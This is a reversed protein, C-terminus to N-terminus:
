PAGNWLRREGFSGISQCVEHNKAVGRDGRRACFFVVGNLRTLQLYASVLCTGGGRFAHRGARAFGQCVGVRRRRREGFTMGYGNKVVTESKAKGRPHPFGRGNGCLGGNLFFSATKGIRRKASDDGSLEHVIDSDRKLRKRM